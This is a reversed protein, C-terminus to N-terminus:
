RSGFDFFDASNYELLGGSNKTSRPRHLFTADRSRVSPHTICRTASCKGLSACSISSSTHIRYPRCCPQCGSCLSPRMLTRSTSRRGSTSNSAGHKVEVVLLQLDVLHHPSDLV